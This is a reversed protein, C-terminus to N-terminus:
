PVGVYDGEGSKMRRGGWIEHEHEGARWRKLRGGRRPRVRGPKQTRTELTVKLLTSSDKWVLQEDRGEADLGHV